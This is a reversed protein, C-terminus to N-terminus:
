PLPWGAERLLRATAILPLGILATPDRTEIADFLTIGYGECKFSGACDLAPEAAIYRRIEGASLKRFHVTTVDAARLTQIGHLLTIATHFHVQRGSCRELQFQAQEVNGPKGLILGDIAASQDSGLVWAQPHLHALHRAKADALRASLAAASEGAQATEDVASAESSFPVQLRALLEARYPSSSALILRHTM